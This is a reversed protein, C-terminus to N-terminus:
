FPLDEDDEVDEFHAQESAYSPDTKEYTDKVTDSQEQRRSPPFVVEDAIVETVHRKAGKDDTFDRNQLEGVVTVPSGKAFYKAAFEATQNWVVIKHFDSKDKDFRRRTAVTFSAVSKGSQTKKVEIDATIHGSLIVKNM